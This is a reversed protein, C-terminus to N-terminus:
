DAVLNDIVLFVLGRWRLSPLPIFPTPHKDRGVFYMPNFIAM